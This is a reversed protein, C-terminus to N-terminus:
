VILQMCYEPYQAYLTTRPFYITWIYHMNPSPQLLPVYLTYENVYHILLVYLVYKSVYLLLLMYYSCIVYILFMCYSVYLLLLMYCITLVYLLLCVTLPVYLTYGSTLHQYRWCLCQGLLEPRLNKM